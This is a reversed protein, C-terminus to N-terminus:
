KRRHLAKTLGYVLVNTDVFGPALNDSMFITAIGRGSVSM